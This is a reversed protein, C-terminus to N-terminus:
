EYAGKGWYPCSKVGCYRKCLGSPNAPFDDTKVALELRKVRPLINNWLAPVDAAVVKKTVLRKEKAWYFSASYNKVDPFFIATMAIFLDLQGWDDKVKGFKWDIIGATEGKVILLDLVARCWVDKDFFGAPMYKQNIALKQETYLDAGSEHIRKLVDEHQRLELPLPTGKKVRNEFALHDLVGQSKTDFAPPPFDKKVKEHYFKKACTKHADLASHSWAIIPKSAIAM